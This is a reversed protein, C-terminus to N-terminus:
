NVYYDIEPKNVKGHLFGTLKKSFDDPIIIAAYYDGAKVGDIAEDESMVVWDLSDNNGLEEVIKDGVNIQGTLEETTGKDQCAVAIRISSTNAYPDMNAAINFWAYLSPLVCIGLIVIVAVWSSLIRKFDRKLIYGINRM